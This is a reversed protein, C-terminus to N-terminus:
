VKVLDAESFWRQQANGDIDTWELMCYVTGDEDMRFAQIPGEPVVTNVKVTDGKKFQTAM